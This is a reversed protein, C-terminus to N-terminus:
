FLNFSVAKFMFTSPIKCAIIRCYSLLVNGFYMFIYNMRSAVTFGAASACSCSCKTILRVKRLQPILLHPFSPPLWARCRCLSCFSVCDFMGCTFRIRFMQAHVTGPTRPPFAEALGAGGGGGGAAADEEEELELNEEEGPALIKRASLFCKATVLWPLLFILQSLRFNDCHSPLILTAAGIDNTQLRYFFFSFFSFSVKALQSSKFWLTYKLYISQLCLHCLNSSNENM